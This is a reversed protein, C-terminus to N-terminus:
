MPINTPSVYEYILLIGFANNMTQAFMIQSNTMPKWQTKDYKSGDQRWGGVNPALLNELRRATM